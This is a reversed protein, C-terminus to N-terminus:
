QIAGSLLYSVDLWDGPQPAIAKLRQNDARRYIGVRVQDGTQYGAPVTVAHEDVIEDGVRWTPMPLYGGAPSGDHQAVLEGDRVWHVFVALDDPIPQRTHWRLTVTYVNGLAGAPMSVAAARLGIGQEFTALDDGTAAQSAHVAVFARRPAPDLDGQALPGAQVALASGPPLANRLATWDHNPDVLLLVDAPAPPTPAGAAVVSVLGAEVAPSLFRLAPNNAALRDEIWVSAPGHAGAFTNVANALQVNHDELWYRTLDRNVYDDFYDNATTIGTVVLVVGAVLAPPSILRRLPGTYFNLLGRRSFWGLIAELGVAALLCAAPLAGIARLFHPTDEALITPILFVALWLLLFFSSPHPIFTSPQPNLTVPQLNLTSPQLNPTSPHSGVESKMRRGEYKMSKWICVAVGVFFAMVLWQTFVPRLSLNHRWIRDGQYAFMGLAKWVNGLLTGLFDGKNIVPSLISVQDARAFYLDPHRLLWLILPALALAAGAAFGLWTARPLRLVSRLGPLIAAILIFGGFLVAIFQGSTYTYFTLGFAVGAVWGRLSRGGHRDKNPERLMAAFLAVAVCLWFPLLIARFAVRSIALHWFTVALIAASLVGIRQSFLNRGAFYIAIIIATGVLASVLRLAEPTRGFLAIAPALLYMFMGERGNNAAFYLAFHGRLVNLADLGYFGEDRYLGPPLDGVLYLRLAAGAVVILM